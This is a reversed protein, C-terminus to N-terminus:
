LKVILKESKGGDGIKTEEEEKERGEIKRRGEQTLNTKPNIYINKFKINQVPWLKVADITNYESNKFNWHNKM